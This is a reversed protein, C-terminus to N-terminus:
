HGHSLPTFQKGVTPGINMGYSSSIRSPSTIKNMAPSMWNAAEVGVVHHTPRSAKRTTSDVHITGWSHFTSEETHKAIKGLNILRMLSTMATSSANRERSSAPFWSYPCVHQWFCWFTRCRPLTSVNQTALLFKVRQLTMSLVKILLHTITMERTRLLM